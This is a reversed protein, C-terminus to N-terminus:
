CGEMIARNRGTAKAHYLRADALKLLADKGEAEGARALGISTTVSLGPAIGSWPYERVQKLIRDCVQGAAPAKARDLLLVFEEGGIRAVVDDNRCCRILIQAFAKLVEDGIAHSYRDNITKFHDLDTYIVAFDDRGQCLISEYAQELKRRNAVGTLPDTQAERESQEARVSASEALRRLSEAEYIIAAVRARLKVKEGEFQQEMKRFRKYLKLAIEFQGQAEHIESLIRVCVCAQDVSSEREAAAVAEAGYRMAEDLRGQRRLIDGMTYLYQITRRGVVDGSVRGWEALQSQADGFRGLYAYYEANNTLAIRLVWSDSNAKGLVCAETTLAIAQEYGPVFAAEDGHESAEDALDARLCGLNVLIWSTLHSDGQRRALELAEDGMSVAAARDGGLAIAVSLAHMALAQSWADGCGEALAVAASASVYSEDNLGLHALQWACLARARSQTAADLDVALSKAQQAHDFARETEGLQFLAWSILWEHRSALAPDARADM